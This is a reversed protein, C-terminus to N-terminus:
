KLEFTFGGVDVTIKDGERIRGIDFYQLYEETCDLNTDNIDVFCGQYLNKVMPDYGSVTQGTTDNLKWKFANINGLTNDDPFHYTVNLKLRYGGEYDILEAKNVTIPYTIPEPLHAKDNVNGTKGVKFEKNKIFKIKTPNKLQNHHNFYDLEQADEKSTPVIYCDEVYYTKSFLGEYGRFKGIITIPEQEQFGMDELDGYNESFLAVLDSHSQAQLTLKHSDVDDVNATWKVDKGMLMHNIDETEMKEIDQLNGEENIEIFKISDLKNEDIKYGKPNRFATLFSVKMEETTTKIKCDELSWYNASLFGGKHYKKIKGHVTILDNESFNKEKMNGQSDLFDCRIEPYDGSKLVVSHKGIDRIYGTWEVNKGKYKEKVISETITAHKKSYNETYYQLDLIQADKAKEIEELEKQKKEEAEQKQQAEWQKKEEKQKSKFEEEEKQLERHQEVLLRGEKTYFREPLYVCAFIIVFVMIWLKLIGHKKSRISMKDKLHFVDSTVAFGFTLAVFAVVMSIRYLLADNGSLNVPLDIFFMFITCIFLIGFFFKGILKLM